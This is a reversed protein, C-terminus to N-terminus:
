VTHLRNLAAVYLAAKAPITDSRRHLADWNARGPQTEESANTRTIIKANTADRIFYEAPLSRVLTSSTRGKLYTCTVWLPRWRMERFINALLWTKAETAGANAAAALVFIWYHSIASEIAM